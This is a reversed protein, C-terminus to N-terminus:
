KLMLKLFFNIIHNYLTTADAGVLPVLTLFYDCVTNNDMYRVVLCLHKITSKDTSEDVILSFKNTPLCACLSTFCHKGLVNKVIGTAKTRGCTM